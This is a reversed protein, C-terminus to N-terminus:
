KLLKGTFVEVKPNIPNGSSRRFSVVQGVHWLVDAIPGNLLNWFPFTSSTKENKFIVNFEILDVEKSRKLVDSATKINELTRKRMEMFALRPVDQGTINPVKRVANVVITSLEYIHSLTELSTRAETSPRYNLDSDRLGDTAWYYRFGLGDIMRAGVTAATFTEPYQPIEYYPLTLDQAIATACSLFIVCLSVILKM